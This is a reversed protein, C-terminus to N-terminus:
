KDNKSAKHLPTEGNDDKANVDAGKEILLKATEANGGEAASHLPTEGYRTANVNAGKEILLRVV